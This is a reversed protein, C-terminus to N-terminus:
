VFRLLFPKRANLPQTKGVEVCVCEWVNGGGLCCSRSQIPAPALPVSEGELGAARQGMKKILNKRRKWSMGEEVVSASSIFFM